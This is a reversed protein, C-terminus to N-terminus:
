MPFKGMFYNDYKSNIKDCVRKLEIDANNGNTHEITYIKIKINGDEQIVM